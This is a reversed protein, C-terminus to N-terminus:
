PLQEPPPLWAAKYEGADIAYIGTSYPRGRLAQGYLRQPPPPTSPAGSQYARFMSKQIYKCRMEKDKESQYYQLLPPATRSACPPLSIM